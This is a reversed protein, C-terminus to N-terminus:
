LPAPGGPVFVQLRWYTLNEAVRNRGGLGTSTIRGAEKKERRCNAGSAPQITEHDRPNRGFGYLYTQCQILRASFETECDSNM